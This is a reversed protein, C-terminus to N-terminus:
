SIGCGSLPKLVFRVERNNIKIKSKTKKIYFDSESGGGGQMKEAYFFLKEKLINCTEKSLIFNMYTGEYLEFLLYKDM